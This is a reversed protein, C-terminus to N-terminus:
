TRVRAQVSVEAIDLETSLQTLEGGKVREHNVQGAVVVM